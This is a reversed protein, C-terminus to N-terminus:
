HSAVLTTTTANHWMTPLLLEADHLTTGKQHRQEIKNNIESKEGKKREVLRVM